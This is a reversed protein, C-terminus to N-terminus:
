EGLAELVDSFPYSECDDTAHYWIRKSVSALVPVNPLTNTGDILSCDVDYFMTNNDLLELRAELEKIHEASWSSKRLGGCGTCQDEIGENIHYCDACKWQAELEKVTAREAKLAQLLEWATDRGDSDIGWNETTLNTVLYNFRENTIKDTM